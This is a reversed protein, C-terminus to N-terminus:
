APASGNSKAKVTFQAQNAESVAWKDIEIGTRKSAYRLQMRVSKPKMDTDNCDVVGAQGPKLSTLFKDYADRMALVEKSPKNAYAKPKAMSAEPITNFTPIPM